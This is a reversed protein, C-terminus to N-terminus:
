RRAQCGGVPRSDRHHPPPGYVFHAICVSLSTAIAALTTVVAFLSTGGLATLRDDRLVMCVTISVDSWAVFAIVVRRRFRHTATIWAGVPLSTLAVIATVVAGWGSRDGSPVSLTGIVGIVNTRVGVVVRTM